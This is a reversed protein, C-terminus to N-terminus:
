ISKIYIDTHENAEEVGERIFSCWAKRDQAVIRWNEKVGCRGLDKVVLDNWRCKHGGAAAELLLVSWCSRQCTIM